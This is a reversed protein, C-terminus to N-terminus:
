AVAQCGNTMRKRICHFCGTEKRIEDEVDIGPERTEAQCDSVHLSENVYRATCRIQCEAMERACVHGAIRCVAKLTVAEDRGALDQAGDPSAKSCRGCDPERGAKM